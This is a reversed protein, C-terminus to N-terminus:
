GTWVSSDCRVVESLVTRKDFVMGVIAQRTCDYRRMQELLGVVLDSSPTLAELVDDTHLLVLPATAFSSQEDVFHLYVAPEKTPVAERYRMKLFADYQRRHSDDM